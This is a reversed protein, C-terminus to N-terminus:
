FESLPQLLRLGLRDCQCRIQRLLDIVRPPSVRVLDFKSATIYILMVPLVHLRIAAVNVSQKWKHQNVYRQLYRQNIYHDGHGRSRVHRCSM